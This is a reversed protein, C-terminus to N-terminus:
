LGIPEYPYVKVDAGGNAKQVGSLTKDVWTKYENADKLPGETILFSIESTGKCNEALDLDFVARAAPDVREMLQDPWTHGTDKVQATHAEVKIDGKKCTAKEVGVVGYLLGGDAQMLNKYRIAALNDANAEAGLALYARRVSDLSKEPLKVAVKDLTAVALAVGEPNAGGENGVGAADPLAKVLDIAVLPDTESGLRDGLGPIAAKGLNRAYTALLGAFLGRDARARDVAGGLYTQVSADRCNALAAFWRQDYFTKGLTKETDLFWAPVTAETCQNGLWAITSSREDSELRGVWSRVEGGSGGKIAALAAQNGGDGAIIKQFATPALTKAAAADCAALEAYIVGAGSPSADNFRATIGKADCTAAAADPALAALLLLM